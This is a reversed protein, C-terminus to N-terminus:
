LADLTVQNIKRVSHIVDASHSCFANQSMSFCSIFCVFVNQPFFATHSGSLGKWPFFLYILMKYFFILKKRRRYAILIVKVEICPHLSTVMRCFDVNQIWFLYNTHHRSRILKQFLTHTSPTSNDFTTKRLLHQEVHVHQEVRQLHQSNPNSKVHMPFSLM